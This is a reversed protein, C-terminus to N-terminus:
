KTFHFAKTYTHSDLQEFDYEYLVCKGFSRSYQGLFFMFSNPASAFIHLTSSKELISRRNVVDQISYVLDMAQNGNKISYRSPENDPPTFSIAHGIPINNDTIYNVVDSYIDHTISLILAVDSVDNFIINDSEYWDLHERKYSFSIDWLEIGNNATKQMPFVNIGSKSDLIRGTAFAISTHADLYIKYAQESTTRSILFTQIKDYVADWSYKDKLKRKDFMDLLSLSMSNDDLSIASRPFSVVAIPVREISYDKAILIIRETLAKEFNEREIGQGTISAIMQDNVMASAIFSIQDHKLLIGNRSIYRYIDDRLIKELVNIDCPIAIVKIKKNQMVEANLSDLSKESTKDTVGRYRKDLSNIFTRADNTTDGILLLEFENSDISDNVLEYLWTTINQKSFKNITSKVQISKIIKSNKELAIDVKDNESDFELYIKDWTDQCTAEIVSALAQYLYGRSGEKGGMVDAGKM